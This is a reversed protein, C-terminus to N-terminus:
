LSGRAIMAKAMELVAKSLADLKAELRDIDARTAIRGEPTTEPVVVMGPQVNRIAVM